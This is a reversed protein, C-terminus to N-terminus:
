LKIVERSWMLTTKNTKYSQAYNQGDKELPGILCLKIDEGHKRVRRPPQVHAVYSNIGDTISDAVELSHSTM